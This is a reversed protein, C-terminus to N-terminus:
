AAKASEQAQAVLEQQSLEFHADEVAILSSAYETYEEAARAASQYERRHDFYMSVLGLTWWPVLEVGPISALVGKGAPNQAFRRLKGSEELVRSAASAKKSQAMITRTQRATKALGAYTKQASSLQRALQEASGQINKKKERLESLSKGLLFYTASGLTAIILVDILVSLIIGIGSLDLLTQLWSVIDAGMSCYLVVAYRFTSPPNLNEIIDRAQAILAARRRGYLIENRRLQASIDRLIDQSPLSESAM